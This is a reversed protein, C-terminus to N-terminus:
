LRMEIKELIYDVDALSLQDSIPLSVFNEALFQSTGDGNSFSLFQKWPSIQNIAQPYHIGSEINNKTLYERFNDRNPICISYIHYM